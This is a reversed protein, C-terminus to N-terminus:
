EKTTRGGGGGGGIGGGGGKSMGGGGGGTAAGRGGGSGCDGAGERVAARFRSRMGPDKLLGRDIRSPPATKAKALKASICIDMVVMAHDSHLGCGRVGADRVHRLDRQRVFFHDLQFGRNLAFHPHTWTAYRRKQFYSTAACWGNAACVQLLRRGALNSHAEGWPGLVKDRGRGGQRVGLCANVDAGLVFIENEGCERHCEELSHEFEAKEAESAASTPAYACVVFLRTTRGREDLPQLRVAIVRKGFVLKAGGARAQAEQAEPSLVIAVGLRGRNCTRVVEGHHLVRMAREGTGIMFDEDGVIWTEQLCAVQVRRGGGAAEMIEVMEEMKPNSGDARDSLGRVNQTVVRMTPDCRQNRADARPRANGPRSGPLAERSLVEAQDRRPVSPQAGGFSDLDM